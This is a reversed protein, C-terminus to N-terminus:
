GEQNPLSVQHEVLEVLGKEALADIATKIKFADDLSYVGKSQAFIAANILIEIATQTEM